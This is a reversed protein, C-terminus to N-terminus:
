GLIKVVEFGGDEDEDRGGPVCAPRRPEHPPCLYVTICVNMCIHVITCIYMCIYVYTCIHTYMMYIYTRTEVGAALQVALSTPHVCIYNYVYMYTSCVYMGNHIIYTLGRRSGRLSSSSARPSAPGPQPHWGRGPRESRRLCRYPPSPM